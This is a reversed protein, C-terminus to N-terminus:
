WKSKSGEKAAEKPDFKEVKEGIVEKIKELTVEKGPTKAVEPAIKNTPIL